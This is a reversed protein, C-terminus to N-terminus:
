DGGFMSTRTLKQKITAVVYLTDYFKFWDVQLSITKNGLATQGLTKPLKVIQFQRKRLRSM